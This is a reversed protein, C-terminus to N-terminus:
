IAKEDALFFAVRQKSCCCFNRQAEIHLKSRYCCLDAYRAPTPLAIVGRSRVSNHCLLFAMKQLTDASMKLDDQLIIYKTLRSTGQLLLLMLHHYDFKPM